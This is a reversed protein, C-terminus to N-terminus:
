FPRSHFSLIQVKWLMKEGCMEILVHGLFVVVHSQYRLHYDHSRLTLFPCAEYCGHTGRVEM